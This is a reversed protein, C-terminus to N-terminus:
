DTATKKYRRLNLKKRLYCAAERDYANLVEAVQYQVKDPLRRDIDKDYVYRAVQEATKCGRHLLAYYARVCLGMDDIPTFQGGQWEEIVRGSLPANEDNYAYLRMFDQSYGRYICFRRHSLARKYLYQASPAGITTYVEGTTFNVLCYNM